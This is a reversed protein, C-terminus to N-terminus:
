RRLGEVLELTTLVLDVGGSSSTAILAGATVWLLLGTLERALNALERTLNGLERTTHTIRRIRRTRRDHTVIVM